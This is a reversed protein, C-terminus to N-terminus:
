WRREFKARLFIASANMLVLFALLALTAAATKQRFGIEPFDSWMYIQVPLVTAPDTFSAPIDAIFAVMGIMLLPATEGLARSLSIITGTLIGPLALPFCHHFVVQMKSAGVGLAAERISPPVSQLSARTAIIVTPLSMLSLVLGGTIAASRPAFGGITFAGLSVGSVFLGLGLLGFVISPVAALNNINIEILDTFRNRPAFEELYLAAAVGVPFSLLLTIALTLFSGVFAGFIGAMEPERSAGSTFFFWNWVNEIRNTKRLNELWSVHEASLKSNGSDEGGNGGDGSLDGFHGKFYLDSVDAMPLSFSAITGLLEPNQALHRRAAIAAGSSVLKRLARKEKRKTVDPFLEQLSANIQPRLDTQSIDAGALGTLDLDLKIKHVSFAGLANAAITWLFWLLFLGSAFVSLFGFFKFRSEARARAKRKKSQFNNM